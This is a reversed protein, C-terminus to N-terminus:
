VIPVNKNRGLDCESPIPRGYYQGASSHSYHSKCNFLRGAPVRNLTLVRMHPATVPSVNFPPVDHLRLKAHHARHLNWKYWCCKALTGSTERYVSERHQSGLLICNVHVNSMLAKVTDIVAQTSFFTRVFRFVNSSETSKNGIAFGYAFGSRHRQM